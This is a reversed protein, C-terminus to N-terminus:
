VAIAEVIQVLSRTPIVRTFEFGANTLLTQFEALTRECGGNIVMISIDGLATEATPADADVVREVILVKQHTKMAARCNKLIHTAEGNGWDHLVRSLIYGDGEATVQEMFDGPVFECREALGVGKLHEEGARVAQELDFLVARVAPNAKLIAALTVGAGGGVDVVRSFQSFDYADVVATSVLSARLSIAQDFVRRAAPNQKRYEWVKTGFAHDFANEGTKVSHLLHGWAAYHQSGTFISWARLSGAQDGRLLEAAPNLEFRDGELQTFIGVSCLARLLRFLSRPHTGSADALEGYHRPGDKLLDALGLEAAVYVLQSVRYGEIMRRLVVQPSDERNSEESM